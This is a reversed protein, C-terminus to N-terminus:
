AAEGTWARTAAVPLLWAGVRSLRYGEIADGEVIGAAQWAPLVLLFGHEVVTRDDPDLAPADIEEAAEAYDILDDPDAPAGPGARVLGLIAGVWDALELTMIAAAEDAPLGPEEVMSISSAVAGVLLEQDDLGGPDDIGAARVIWQASPDGRAHAERLQAAARAIEGEDLQVDEVEALSANLVEAAHSEAAEWAALFEDEDFDDGYPDFPEDPWSETDDEM